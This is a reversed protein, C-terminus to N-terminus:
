PASEFITWDGFTKRKFYDKGSLSYKEVSSEQSIIADPRFDSVYISSENVVFVHELTRSSLGNKRLLKYLPYDWTDIGIYIGIGSVTKRTALYDRMEYLGEDYMFSRYSRSVVNKKLPVIPHRENKCLAIFGFLIIFAVSFKRIYDRFQFIEIGIFASFMMFIPTELRNAWPQWKLLVVFLMCALILSISYPMLLSSSRRLEGRRFFFLILCLFILAVHCFNQMYDEHFLVGVAITDMQAYSYDPNNPDIGLRPAQAEIYRAVERSIPLHSMLDKLAVFGIDKLSFGKNTTNTIDQALASGTLFVNRAYHGSNILIAIVPILAYMSLHRFFKKVPLSLDRFAVIVYWFCFIFTFLYATGKTLFAFGLSLGALVIMQWHFQRFLRITYYAFACCFFAVVIDNQTTNSQVVAMPLFCAFCGAVIQQNKNGGLSKAILSVVITCGALFFLQVANAFRDGGTLIQLHLIIWEALPPFILQRTIHTRYHSISQNQEWHAVRAMHYTFSDYNNPPYALAIVLSVGLLLFIMKVIWHQRSVNVAYRTLPKLHRFSNSKLVAVLLITLFALWSILLNKFNLFRFFSLFETTIVLFLVNYMVSYMFAHRTPSDVSASALLKSYAVLFFFLFSLLPILALISM